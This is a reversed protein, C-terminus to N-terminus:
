ISEVIEESGIRIKHGYRQRAKVFQPSNMIRHTVRRFVIRYFVDYGRFSDRTMSRTTEMQEIARQVDSGKLEIFYARKKSDNVVLFDCRKHHDRKSVVDGDVHYQRVRDGDWNFAVHRLDNEESVLKRQRVECISEFRSLDIMM